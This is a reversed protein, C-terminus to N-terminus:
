LRHIRPKSFTFSHVITFSATPKRARLLPREPDFYHVNPTSTINRRFLPFIPISIIKYLSELSQLRRRFENDTEKSRLIFKDPLTVKNCTMKGSLM